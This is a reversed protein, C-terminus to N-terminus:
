AVLEGVDWGGLKGVEMGGYKGHEAVIEKEGNSIKLLELGNKNNIKQAQGQPQRCHNQDRHPDFILQADITIMFIRIPDIDHHGIM